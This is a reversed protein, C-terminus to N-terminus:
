PILLQRLHCPHEALREAHHWTFLCIQIKFFVTKFKFVKVWFLFETEYNFDRKKFQNKLMNSNYM